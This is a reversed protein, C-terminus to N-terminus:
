SGLLRSLASSWPGLMAAPGAHSLGRKASRPKSSGSRVLERAILRQGKQAGIRVNRDPDARVQAARCSAMSYHAYQWIRLPEMDLVGMASGCASWGGLKSLRM